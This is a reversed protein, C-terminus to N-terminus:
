HLSVHHLKSPEQTNNQFTNTQSASMARNSPTQNGIFGHGDLQNRLDSVVGKLKNCQERLTAVKEKDERICTLLGQNQQRLQAVEELAKDCKISDRSWKTDIHKEIPNWLSDTLHDDSKILHDGSKTIPAPTSAMAIAITPTELSPSEMTNVQDFTHIDDSELPIMDADDIKPLHTEENARTTPTNPAMHSTPSM